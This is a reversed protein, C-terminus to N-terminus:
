SRAALLWDLDSGAATDMIRQEVARYARLIEAGFATLQAGGTGGGGVKTEVVRERFDTNLADVLTWIRRYSMGLARGAASISGESVITEMVLAKGPGIVPVGGSTLQLNLKIPGNIAM